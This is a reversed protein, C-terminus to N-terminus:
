PRVRRRIRPPSTVAAVEHPDLDFLERLAHAYDGSTEGSQLEKVRVTPTHLLKDVVRQVTRRVESRSAEDLEPLRQLLRAYELDVVEHARARLAAVTPAVRQARRDTLYAAVEATVLDRVQAVASGEVADAVTDRRGAQIESLGWVHVGPLGGVQPAVDRPLALDIVVLPTDVAARACAVAPVDLVHGVAGTCSVVLDAQSLVHALDGWAAARGGHADALRAAREATRNVVVLEGVGARSLTAAALGSMSGAGLVVARAASLDPLVTRARELGLGVLSAAVADIATESHARKGVRLAHQFLPNLQPGVHGAHQAVSLADRLQGLVQSEGVAMSDLGCALSFVHSVARDEYHVYLHETLEELGLATSRSLEEGIATLPGHFSEAEVVVEVRNCTALVLCESIGEARGVRAALDIAGLPGLAMRELVEIPATHHSLGVVLVSM